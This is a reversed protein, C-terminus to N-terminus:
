RTRVGTREDCKIGTRTHANYYRAFQPLLKADYLDPAGYTAIIEFYRDWLNFYETFVKEDFTGANIQRVCESESERLWSRISPLDSPNLM